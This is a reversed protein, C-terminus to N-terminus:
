SFALPLDVSLNLSPLVIAPGFACVFRSPLSRRVLRAKNRLRLPLWFRRFACFLSARSWALIALMRLSAVCLAVVISAFFQWRMPMSSSFTRPM